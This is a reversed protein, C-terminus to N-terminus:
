PNQAVPQCNTYGSCGAVCSNSFTHRLGDSGKCSVPLYIAPCECDGQPPPDRDIDIFQSSGPVVALALATAGTFVLAAIAGSWMKRSM